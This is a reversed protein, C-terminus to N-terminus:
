FNSYNYKMWVKEIERRLVLNVIEEVNLNEIQRLLKENVDVRYLFMRIDNKYGGKLLNNIIFDIESVLQPPTTENAKGWDIGCMNLDKEIQNLLMKFLDVCQTHNTIKTLEPTLNQKEGKM